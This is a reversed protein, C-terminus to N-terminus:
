PDQCCSCVWHSDLLQLSCEQTQENVPTVARSESGPQSRLQVLKVLRQLLPPKDIPLWFRQHLPSLSTVSHAQAHM